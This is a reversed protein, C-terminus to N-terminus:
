FRIRDPDLNLHSLNGLAAVTCNSSVLLRRALTQVDRATVRDIGALIEDFTFHRGYYIHQRALNSMRSSSSELSLMLSGKLHDKAGKLEPEEIAAEKLRALEQCIRDIVEDGGEPRTAAYVMMYGTDIFSNISSFVTYALALEERIKQFLRSSMSGGLLTNMVYGAYRDEHAQEYADVGLCLHLQELDEKKRTVIGAASRPAVVTRARGNSPMSEFSGRVMDIFRGHDLNGAAAIVVNKPHYSERFYKMLLEHGLSSVSEVTGQVPRGLPHSGWLSGSFLDYVLEDPTDEVM